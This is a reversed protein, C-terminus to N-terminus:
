ANRRRAAGLGVLGLGLLLAASPEPVIQISDIDAKVFGPLGGQLVSVDVVIEGSTLSSYDPAIQGSTMGTGITTISLPLFVGPLAATLDIEGNAEWSTSGTGTVDFVAGIVPIILFTSLTGPSGTALYNPAVDENLTADDFFLSVSFAAGIGLAGTADETVTADFIVEIPSAQANGSILISAALLVLLRVVLKPMRMKRM